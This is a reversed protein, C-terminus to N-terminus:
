KKGTLIKKVKVYEGMREPAAKLLDETYEGGVNPNEDERMVNHLPGVKKEITGTGTVGEIARVYEVISTIDSALADKETGSLAIRSLTALHAIEERTM